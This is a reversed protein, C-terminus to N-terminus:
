EYSTPDRTTCVVGRQRRDTTWQLTGLVSEQINFAGGGVIWVVIVGMVGDCFRWAVVGSGLLAIM